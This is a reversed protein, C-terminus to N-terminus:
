SEKKKYLLPILGLPDEGKYVDIIKKYQMMTNSVWAAMTEPDDTYNELRGGVYRGGQIGLFLSELEPDFCGFAAYLGVMDAILEDRVADVDDPYLRRCIVHTIEHYRRITDSHLIWDEESCGAAVADVDSYPGRSLVILQDVYNGKNATFRKFEANQEEEPFQALHAHIRPWNFVQLMAAGQSRPIQVDPGNKAAMFGRMVREFDQRNGLTALCIPGAPTDTIELRDMPDGHYHDLEQSKPMDGRLVVNRYAAQEDKDPDLYLLPYQAALREIM